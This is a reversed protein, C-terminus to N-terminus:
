AFMDPAAETTNRVRPPLNEKKTTRTQDFFNTPTDNEIAIIPRSDEQRSTSGVREAM